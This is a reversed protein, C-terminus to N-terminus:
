FARKRTSSWYPITMEEFKKWLAIEGKSKKYSLESDFLPVLQIFRLEKSGIKTPQIIEDGNTFLFSRAETGQWLNYSLAISDGFDPVKPSGSGHLAAEALAHVIDDAEPTLGLFFECGLADDGFIHSAGSTAYIAVGEGSRDESWKFVEIATGAPSKFDAQRDPLGFRGEYYEFVNDM